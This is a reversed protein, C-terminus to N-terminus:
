NADVQSSNGNFTDLNIDEFNLEPIDLYIKFKNFNKQQALLKM